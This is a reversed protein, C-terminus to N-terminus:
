LLFADLSLRRRCVGLALATNKVLFVDGHPLEPVYEANKAISWIILWGVDGEGEVVETSEGKIFLRPM